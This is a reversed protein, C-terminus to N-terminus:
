PCLGGGTNGMLDKLQEVERLHGDIEAQLAKIRLLSAFGQGSLEYRDIDEVDFLSGHEVVLYRHASGKSRVVYADVQHGFVPLYRM